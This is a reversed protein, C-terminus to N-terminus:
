ALSPLGLITVQSDQHVGKELSGEKGLHEQPDLLDGPDMQAELALPDGQVERERLVKLDGRVKNVLNALQDQLVQLVLHAQPVEAM